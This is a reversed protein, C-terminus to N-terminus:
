MEGEGARRVAEGPLPLLLEDVPRPAAMGPGQYDAVTAGKHGTPSLVTLAYDGAKLSLPHSAHNKDRNSAAVQGDVLVTATDGFARFRYEGEAPIRIRGELLLFWGWLHVGEYSPHFSLRGMPFTHHPAVKLKALEEPTTPLAGGAGGALANHPLAPKWVNAEGAAAEEAPQLSSVPWASCMVKPTIPYYRRETGYGVPQDREDFLRAYIVTPETLQIPGAYVPSDGDPLSPPNWYDLPELRYRITGPRASRLTVTMQEHFVLDRGPSLLGQEQVKVPFMLDDLRRDTASWTTDRWDAFPKFDSRREHNWANESLSAMLRRLDRMHMYHWHQWTLTHIGAISRVHEPDIKKTAVPDFYYAGSFGSYLMFTNYPPPHNTIVHNTVSGSNHPLIRYGRKALENDNGSWPMQLVDMPGGRGYVLLTKGRAKAADNMRAIFHQFPDEGPHNAEFAAYEPLNKFRRDAVEDAGISLYPSSTFVDMVENLLAICAEITDDRNVNIYGSSKYVGTQADRTGFVEPMLRPADTHGPMELEPIITVGRADAYAVLAGLEALTYHRVRGEPTVTPLQPFKESGFTFMGHDNLHFQIHNIKYYRFLDILEYLNVLPHWKRAIDCEASRLKIDSDDAIRMRPAWLRGADLHVAQLLTATGWAAARYSGGAITVRDTVDLRYAEDGLDPDLQLVVDGPQTPGDAATPHHPTLRRLDEALVAALPALAQSDAVVRIHGDLAVRGEGMTVSKPRPIMAPEPEAAAVLLPMAILAVAWWTWRMKHM